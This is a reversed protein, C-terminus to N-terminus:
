LRTQNSCAQELNGQRCLLQSINRRHPKDSKFIGTSRHFHFSPRAKKEGWRERRKHDLVFYETLIQQILSKPTISLSSGALAYYCSFCISQLYAIDFQDCSEFPGLDVSVSIYFHVTFAQIKYTTKYLFWIFISLETMDSEKRGWPSYLGHLEGPRFEPTPLQERRWPIKGIWPDFWPRSCAPPNKVLQAVLSAWSYQLPYGIGEGPSKGSGPIM